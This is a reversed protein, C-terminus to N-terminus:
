IYSGQFGGVDTLDRKLWSSSAMVKAAAPPLVMDL